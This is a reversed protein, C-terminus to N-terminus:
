DDSRTNRRVQQCTDSSHWRCLQLAPEPRKLDEIKQALRSEQRLRFIHERMVQNALDGIVRDQARLALHQVTPYQRRELSRSGPLFVDDFRQAVMGRLGLVPALSVTISM